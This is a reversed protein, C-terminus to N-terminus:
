RGLEMELIKKCTEIDSEGTHYTYGLIKSIKSYLQGRGIEGNKWLPDIKAHVKMRYERLEKNAMTGLPKTTNNHTGM